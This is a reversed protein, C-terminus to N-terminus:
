SEGQTRVLLIPRAMSRIVKEAVSGIWLRSLGSRGHTTMAILDMGFHRAYHIIRDAPYGQETAAAAREGKARLKEVLQALHHGGWASSTHPHLTDAAELVYLVTIEADFRRSLELAHPLIEESQRSGDVPVLIKRIEGMPAPPASLDAREFSKMMLVPVPSNRLVREAVSGHVWHSLGSYGHTTMAILDAGMERATELIVPAAQGGRAAASVKGHTGSASALAARRTELYEQARARLEAMVDPLPAVEIPLDYARLLILDPDTGRTLRQIQPLIAEALASGDLPVLIRKYM